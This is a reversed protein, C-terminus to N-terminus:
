LYSILSFSALLYEIIKSSDMEYIMLFLTEKTNQMGSIIGPVHYNVLFVSM